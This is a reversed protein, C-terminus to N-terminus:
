GDLTTPRRTIVQHEATFGVYKEGDAYTIDGPLLATMQFGDCLGGLTYHSEFAQEYPTLIEEMRELERAIDGKRFLACSVAFRHHHESRSGQVIRPAGRYDIWCAPVVMPAKEGPRELVARIETVGRIVDAAADRIDSIVGM